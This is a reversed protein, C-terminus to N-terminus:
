PQDELSLQWPRDSGFGTRLLAGFGFVGALAVAFWGVVPMIGLSFIVLFGTLWWLVPMGGGIGFLAALHRGLTSAAAAMSLFGLGTAMLALIMALPIGVVTMALLVGLGGLFLVGVLGLLGAEGLAMWSQGLSRSVRQLRQPFLYLMIVGLSGFALLSGLYLAIGGLGSRHVGFPRLALQLANEEEPGQGIWRLGLNPPPGFRQPLSWPGPAPQPYGRPTAVSPSPPVRLYPSWHFAMGGSPLVTTVAVITGLCLLGLGALLLAWSRGM